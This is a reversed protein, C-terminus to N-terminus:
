PKQRCQSYAHNHCVRRCRVQFEYRLIWHEVRGLLGPRDKCIIHDKMFKQCRAHFHACCETPVSTFNANEDNKIDRAFSEFYRIEDWKFTSVQCRVASTMAAWAM